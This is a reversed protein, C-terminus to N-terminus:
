GPWTQQSSLQVSRVCSGCLQPLQPAVQGDPWDHVAPVQADWHLVLASQPGFAPQM